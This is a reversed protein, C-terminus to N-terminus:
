THNPTIAHLPQLQASPPVFRRYFNFMGLSKRLQKETAPKPFKRITAIKQTPTIGKPTVTHGLFSLSTVGFLCKGPNIVIGAEQLRGFLACLHHAHDTESARAVLIDDIYAFVGGLGRTVDNIFRQFTQAANRLSFPMRLFEFLGFPTLVATKPIDEEAIPIQQYAWVLDIRSFVTCGSLEHSFSHLHPLPNRYPATITNLHRYDGCPRWDGVKKKVLHLPTAWQSSSPRMIVLQMMHDFEATARCCRNPALLRCCSHALPGHTMIHHWVEHQSQTARIIPKTLAPFELLIDKFTCTRPFVTDILRCPDDQHRRPM